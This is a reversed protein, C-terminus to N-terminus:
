FPTLWSPLQSLDLGLRIECWPFERTLLRLLSYVSYRIVLHIYKISLSPCTPPLLNSLVCACYVKENLATSHMLHMTVYYNFMVDVDPTRNRM